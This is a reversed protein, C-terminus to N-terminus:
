AVDPVLFACRDSAAIMAATMDAKPVFRVLKTSASTDAESGL